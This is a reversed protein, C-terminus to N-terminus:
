TKKPEKLLHNKNDEKVWDLWYYIIFKVSIKEDEM